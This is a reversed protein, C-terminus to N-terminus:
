KLPLNEADHARGEVKTKSLSVIPIQLKVLIALVPSAACYFSAIVAENM